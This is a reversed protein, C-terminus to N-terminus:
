LNVMLSFLTITSAAAMGQLGTSAGQDNIKNALRWFERPKQWNQLGIGEHWGQGGDLNIKHM